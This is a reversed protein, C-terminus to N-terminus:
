PTTASWPPRPAHPACFCESEGFFEGVGVTRIVRGAGDPSRTVIDVSGQLVVYFDTSAEFDIDRM